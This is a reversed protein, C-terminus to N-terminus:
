FESCVAVPELKRHSPYAFQKILLIAQKIKTVILTVDDTSVGMSKVGRLINNRTVKCFFLLNIHRLRYRIDDEEKRIIQVTFM